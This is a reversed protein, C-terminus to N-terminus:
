EGDMPDRDEFRTNRGRPRNIYSYTETGMYTAIVGGLTIWYLDLLSGMAELRTEPAVALLYGGALIIAILSAIAMNRQTIMKRNYMKLENKQIKGDGNIDLQEKSM